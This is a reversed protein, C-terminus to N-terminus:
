EDSRTEGVAADPAAAADAGDLGKDAAVDDDDDEDDKAALLARYSSINACHKEVTKCTILEYAAM